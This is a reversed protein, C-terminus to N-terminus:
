SFFTYPSYRKLRVVHKDHNHPLDSKNFAQSLEQKRREVAERISEKAQKQSQM